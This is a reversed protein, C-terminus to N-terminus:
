LLPSYIDEYNNRLYGCGYDLLGCLAEATPTFLLRSCMKQM